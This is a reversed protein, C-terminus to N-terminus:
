LKRCKNKKVRSNEDKERKMYHISVEYATRTERKGKETFKTYKRSQVRGILSIKSGVKLYGAIRATNGWCICPIYNAKGSCNCAIIVDTIEKGLPTIRYVPKKCVYGNLEISNEECCPFDHVFEIIEAKVQLILKGNENRSVYEGNVTVFAGKYNRQTDLIDETFIVPIVDETGSKRFVATHMEYFDINSDSHSYKFKRDAIEGSLVVKNKCKISGM